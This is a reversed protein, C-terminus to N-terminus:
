SRRNVVLVLALAISVCCLLRNSSVEDRAHAAIVDHETFQVAVQYALDVTLGTSRHSATLMCAHVCVGCSIVAAQCQLMCCNCRVASSV